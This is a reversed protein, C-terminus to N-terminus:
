SNLQEEEILQKAMNADELAVYVEIKGFLYQSDKKNVIVANIDHEELMTKVIDARLPLQTALVKEWDKM